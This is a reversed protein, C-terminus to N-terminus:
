VSGIEKFLKAWKSKISEYDFNKIATERARSSIEKSLDYDNMLLDIKTVAEDISNVVFGNIGNKIYQSATWNSGNFRQGYTVVPCGAMMGEIFGYVMAAGIRPQVYNVRCSQMLKLMENQPIGQKVWSPNGVSSNDVGVLVRDFIDTTQNYLDLSVDKRNDFGKITTFVKKTEGVWGNFEEKSVCQTIIAQPKILSHKNEAESMRVLYFPRRRIYLTLNAEEIAEHIIDITRHIVPLNSNMLCAELNSQYWCNVVVDFNKLFDKQLRVRGTQVEARPLKYEPYDREFKAILEHNVKMEPIAPRMNTKPKAPNMWYGVSFVEYGLETLIRLEDYELTEHCSIYLLKPM